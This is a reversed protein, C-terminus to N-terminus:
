CHRPALRALNLAGQSQWDNLQDFTTSGDEFVDVISCLFRVGHVGCRALALAPDSLLQLHVHTDAVSVGLAPPDIVRYKGHKRKQRFLADFFVPEERDERDEREDPEEGAVAENRAGDELPRGDAQEITETM